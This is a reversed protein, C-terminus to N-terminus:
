TAQTWMLSQQGREREGADRHACWTSRRTCIRIKPHAYPRITSAEQETVVMRPRHSSHIAAPTM